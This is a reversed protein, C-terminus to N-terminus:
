LWKRTQFFFLMKPLSVQPIVAKYSCKETPKFSLDFCSGSIPKHIDGNDVYEGLDGVGNTFPETKDENLLGTSLRYCFSHGFYTWNKFM